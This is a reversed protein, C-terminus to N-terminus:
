EDTCWFPGGIRFFLWMKHGCTKNYHLTDVFVNAWVDGGKRGNSNGEEVDTKGTQITQTGKEKGVGGAKAGGEGAGGNCRGNGRNNNSLQASRETTAPLKPLSAQATLLLPFWNVNYHSKNSDASFKINMVMKLVSKSMPM